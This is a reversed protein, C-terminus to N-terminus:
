RQTEEALVGDIYKGVLHQVVTMGEESMNDPLYKLWERTKSLAQTDADTIDRIPVEGAAVLRENYAEQQEEWATVIDEKCFHHGVWGFKRHLFHYVDSAEDETLNAPIFSEQPDIM